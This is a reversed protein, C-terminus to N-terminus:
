EIQSSANRCHNKDSMALDVLDVNEVFNRYLRSSKINHITTIQIKSAEVFNM